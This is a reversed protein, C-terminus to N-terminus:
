GGAPDYLLVGDKVELYPLADTVASAEMNPVGFYKGAFAGTGITSGEVVKQVAAFAAPDADGEGPILNLGAAQAASFVSAINQANRKNRSTEASSTFDAIQPVAIAAIVGIIAIVVLMEVLSFGKSAFKTLKM